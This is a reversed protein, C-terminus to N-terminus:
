SKKRRGKARRLEKRAEQARRQEERAEQERSEEERKMEKEKDKEQREKRATETEGKGEQEQGKKGEAETEREGEDVELGVEVQEKGGEQLDSTAQHHSGGAVMDPAVQVWEDEGDEERKMARMNEQDEDTVFNEVQQTGKSGAGGKGELSVKEGNDKGKGKRSTEDTQCRTEGESSAQM